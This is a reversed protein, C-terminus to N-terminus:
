GIFKPKIEEPLYKALEAVLIHLMTGPAIDSPAKGASNSIIREAFRIANKPSGHKLLVDFISDSNKQYKEEGARKLHENLARIYEDRHNNATYNSFHLLFWFEICENSWAAHYQVNPNDDNLRETRYFAENFDSAPFSDKDYVCWIQGKDIRNKRVYEEARNVVRLTEMGCPEIQIVVMNRYVPNDEIAKRFGEFYNPETKMGESFIYYRNEITELYEQRRPKRWGKKGAREPM